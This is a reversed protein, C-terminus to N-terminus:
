LLPCKLLGAPSRDASSRKVNIEADAFQLFANHSSTRLFAFSPASPASPEFTFFNSKQLFHGCYGLFDPRFKDYDTSYRSKRRFKLFIDALITM